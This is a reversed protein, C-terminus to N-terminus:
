KRAEPNFINSTHAKGNCLTTTLYGDKTLSVEHLPESAHDWGISKGKENMVIIANVTGSSPCMMPFGNGAIIQYGPRQNLVKVTHDGPNDCFQKAVVATAVDQKLAIEGSKQSAVAMGSVLCGVVLLMKKSTGNLM